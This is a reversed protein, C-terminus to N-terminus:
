LGLKKNEVLAVVYGLGGEGKSAFKAATLGASGAGVVLLDVEVQKKVKSRDTLVSIPRSSRAGM